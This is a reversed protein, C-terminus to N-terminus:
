PVIWKGQLGREFKLEHVSYFINKQNISGISLVPNNLHQIIEKQVEITTTATLAPLPM